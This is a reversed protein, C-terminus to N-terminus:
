NILYKKLLHTVAKKNEINWFSKKDVDYGQIIHYQADEFRFTTVYISNIVHKTKFRVINEDILREWHFVKRKQSYMINAFPIMEEGYKVYLRNFFLKNAFTFDAGAGQWKIDTYKGNKLSLVGYDFGAM